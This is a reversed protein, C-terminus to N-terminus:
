GCREPHDIKRQSAKNRKKNRRDNEKRDVPAEEKDRAFRQRALNNGREIFIQAGPETLPLLESPSCRFIFAPAFMMKASFRLDEEALKSSANADESRETPGVINKERLHINQLRCGLQLLLGDSINCTVTLPESLDLGPYPM